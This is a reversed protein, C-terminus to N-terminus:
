RFVRQCSGGLYMGTPTKARLLALYQQGYPTQNLWYELQTRNTPAVLSVSVSGISSSSVFGTQANQEMKKSISLLHAVILEYAMIACEGGFCPNNEVEIFCSARKFMAKIKNEDMSCFEPFDTIFDMVTVPTDVM